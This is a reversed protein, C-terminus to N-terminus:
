ILIVSTTICARFISPSSKGRTEALTDSHSRSEAIRSTLLSLWVFVWSFHAWWDSLVLFRKSRGRINLNDLCCDGKFLSSIIAGGLFRRLGFCTEFLETFGALEFPSLRYWFFLFLISKHHYLCSMSEILRAVRFLCALYYLHVVELFFHFSEDIWVLFLHFCLLLCDVLQLLVLLLKLPLYM